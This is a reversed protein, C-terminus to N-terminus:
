RATRTMAAIDVSRNHVIRIANLDIRWRMKPDAGATPTVNTVAGQPEVELRHWRVVPATMLVTCVIMVVM